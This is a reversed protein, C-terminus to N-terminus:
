LVKLNRDGYGLRVKHEDFLKIIAETFTKHAAELEKETPQGDERSEFSIPEGFAITTRISRPCSSGALGSALPICMKLNRMIWYRLGFLVNSTLYHDSTGFVYVPVVPIGKRIALKIFGKRKSLYITEKGCETRIQEDMGGPLVLISFKEDLLGEAVSRSADCCKTWLCFERVVPIRFLISAALVRVKDAINPLATHLIGDMLIRFDSSTGHPFAAFIFQANDAKEAEVLRKPLTDFELRLYKRLCFFAPFRQSFYPWPAGHKLEDRKFLTYTVYPLVCYLGATRPFLFPGVLVLLSSAISVAYLANWWLYASVQLGLPPNTCNLPPM